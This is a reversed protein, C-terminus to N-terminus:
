RFHILVVSLNAGAFHFCWRCRDSESWHLFTSENGWPRNENVEVVHDGAVDAGSSGHITLFTLKLPRAPFLIPNFNQWTLPPLMRTWKITNYPGPEAGRFEFFLALLCRACRSNHFRSCRLCRSCVECVEFHPFPQM